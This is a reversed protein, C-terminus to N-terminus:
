TRAASPWLTSSILVSELVTQIVEDPTMTTLAKELAAYGDRAIYEDINQPNIVGCNRLAIRLQKKYFDTEELSKVTSTAANEDYLLREVRNGKLLHEAVIEAVDQTNVHSYITGDPFVAVNPGSTCLGLCGGHMVQVEKRLGALKIQVEFENKLRESGGASCSAGGCVLVYNRYM